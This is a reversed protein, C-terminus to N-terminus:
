QRGLRMMRMLDAMALNNIQTPKPPAQVRAASPAPKAANPQASRTSKVNKSLNLQNDVASSFTDLDHLGVITTGNLSDGDRIGIIFTPTARIGLSSGMAQQAALVDDKGAAMCANFKDMDLGIRNALSRAYSESFNGSSLILDHLDWYHGQEGACLTATHAARADPRIFFTLHVFNVRGNYRAMVQKMTQQVKATFPCSFDSFEVITVPAAPNGKVELGSLNLSSFNTASISPVLLALLM